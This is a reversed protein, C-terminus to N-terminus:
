NCGLAPWIDDISKEIIINEPILKDAMLWNYENHLLGLASHGLEHSLLFMRRKDSATLWWDRLIYVAGGPTKTTHGVANESAGDPMRSVLVIFPVKDRGGCHSFFEDAIAIVTGDLLEPAVYRQEMNADISNFCSTLVLITFPVITKLM